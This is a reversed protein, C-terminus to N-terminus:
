LFALTRPPPLTTKNPPVFAYRAEASFLIEASYFQLPYTRDAIQHTILAALANHFSASANNDGCSYEQWFDCLVAIYFRTLTEHYGSQRPIDDAAPIGCCRNYASIGARMKVLAEVPEHTCVYWLGVALHAEHTWQNCPLALTEFERVLRTADSLTM